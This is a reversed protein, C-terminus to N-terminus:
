NLVGSLLFLIIGYEIFFCITCAFIYGILFLIKTIIEFLDGKDFMLFPTFYLSFTAFISETLDEESRFFFKFFYIFLPINVFFLLFLGLKTIEGSASIIEINM